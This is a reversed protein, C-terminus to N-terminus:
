AYKYSDEAFAQDARKLVDFGQSFRHRSVQPGVASDRPCVHPGQPCVPASSSVPEARDAEEFRSDVSPNGILSVLLNCESELGKHKAYFFPPGM